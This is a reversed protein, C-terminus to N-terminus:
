PGIYNLRRSDFHDWFMVGSAGTKLTLAGLRALDISSVDNDLGTLRKVSVGDIWLEFTGNNAGPATAKVWDIEVAHPANTINFFGTDMRTGDDRQVRGMLAYQGGQRRLVIAFLRKLIGGGQDEFGLLMRARFHSAAEGPDFTNPDLYFRARYRPEDNPTNDQVYLSTTDNVTGQMGFPTGALASPANAVLDGGGTNQVSWATLNGADFGNAFILDSPVTCTYVRVDDIAWGADGFSSDTGLRFAFRINQGAISSLNYQSATYGFSDGAFAQRGEIPNGFGVELAGDYGAGTAFLPGMDTWPGVPTETRYEVVGGDYFGTPDDDFGYAHNFQLRAGAPVVLPATRILRGHTVTDQDLGLLSWNGSTAFDTAVYWATPLIETASEIGWNTNSLGAEMDDFFVNTAAQGLSCLNPTRPGASPCPWPDAMEVADLALQVQWCDNATIGVVGVLDYCSQRIAHYADLFGSANTLYQDLARYHIKAAKQLGIAAITRGNYTGGDVMLAYAHDPVGMNRHVGGLDGGPTGCDFQASDSMKGPLGFANPNMLNRVPGKGPPLDEGALWRVPATDNGLGNTLDVTEGFLDAFAENLAGSQMYYFLNATNEVVAHTFEHSVVDDALSMQDGFALQSGNWFANVYPCPSGNRCHDVTAIIQGGTGNFSDRGHETLFYSHVAGLATYATDGDANGSPPGGESRILAGPLATAPNNAGTYIARNLAHAIQSFRLLVHGRHADVWVYERTRPGTAAVFWALRTPYRRKELLGRNFVELRPESFSLDTDEQGRASLAARVTEQADAPGLTPQVDLGDLGDLTQGSVATVRDGRLHVILEAGTVPVGRHLQRVRVHELGAEDVGGIRRVEVQSKDRIFFAEGHAALFSLARADAASTPSDPVPIGEGAPVTLFIVGGTEPSVSVSVPAGAAESLRRVAESRAPRPQAGARAAPLLAVCVLVSWARSM